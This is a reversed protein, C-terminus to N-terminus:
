ISLAHFRFFWSERTVPPNGLRRRHDEGLAVLMDQFRDLSVVAQEAEGLDPSLEEGAFALSLPAHHQEVLVLVDVTGAQSLAPAQRFHDVPQILTAGFQDGAQVPCIHLVERPALLRAPELHLMVQCDIIKSYVQFLGAFRVRLDQQLGPRRLTIKKCVRVQDRVLIVVTCELAIDAWIPIESQDGAFVANAVQQLDVAARLIIGAEQTLFDDRPQRINAAARVLLAKPEVAPAPQHHRGTFPSHPIHEALRFLAFSFAKKVEGSILFYGSPRDQVGRDPAPSVTIVQYRHNEQVSRM